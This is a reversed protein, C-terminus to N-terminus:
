LVVKILRGALLKRIRGTILLEFDPLSNALDVPDFASKIISLIEDITIPNEGIRLLQIDLEDIEQLSYRKLGCEPIVCLYVSTPFENMNVTAEVAAISEVDFISWDFSCELIEVIPDAILLHNNSKYKDDFLLEFYQTYNIDRTYLSEESYQVFKTEVVNILQNEFGKVGECIRDIDFELVNRNGNRKITALVNETIPFRFQSLPIASECHPKKSSVCEILVRGSKLNLYRDVLFSESPYEIFHYYDSKLQINNNKFLAIIRYYYEPYDQRLRNALEQCVKHNKKYPSGILHLYQNHFPVGLFNGFGVYQDDPIVEKFLVGVKKDLKLALCYFLYQEFYINFALSNIQPIVSSNLKILDKARTTYLNFFDLDNGGFIGANYTFINRSKTKVDLIDNSTYILQKELEDFTSEYRATGIELNQVILDSQLLEDDFAKFIFVDGDVHLFPETQKSYTDIKTLAWLDPSLSSYQDLDCCVKTYPLKLTDILMKATVTDAHLTIDGYYKTLQLCSLAWAMLHYEPSYWGANFRLMDDSNCAWSTQVIKM